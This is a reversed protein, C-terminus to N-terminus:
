AHPTAELYKKLKELLEFAEAFVAMAALEVVPLMGIRFCKQLLVILLMVAALRVILKLLWALAFTPIHRLKKRLDSLPPPENSNALRMYVFRILFVCFVALLGAGLLSTPHRFLESWEAVTKYNDKYTLLNDLAMAHAYVGPLPGHVPSVIQDNIGPIAAGIFVYRDHFYPLLTDSDLSAVQAMSLTSHYPCLPPPPGAVWERVFGPVLRWWDKEGNHCDQFFQPRQEDPRNLLGWMLAMPEDEKGLKAHGVDEAIALAASRITPTSAQEAPGNQWGEPAMHRSLQYSWLQGDLADPLVKIDVLTFCPKGTKPDLAHLGSRVKLRGDESSLAALFVPVHFENQIQCLTEALRGIGPDNREQGFTIDLMMARPRSAADAAIRLLWDAHDAYPLPWASGTESLFAQDYMLVSIEDRTTPPYYYANLPAQGTAMFRTVVMGQPLLRDSTALLAFSAVVLILYHAIWGAIRTRTREPRIAADEDQGKRDFSPYLCFLM